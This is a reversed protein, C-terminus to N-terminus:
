RGSNGGTCETRRRREPGGTDGAGKRYVMREGYHRVLGEINGGGSGVVMMDLIGLAQTVLCTDTTNLNGHKSCVPGSVKGRSTREPNSLLFM